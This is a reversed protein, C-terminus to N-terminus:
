HGGPRRAVRGQLREVGGHRQGEQLYAEMLHVIITSATKRAYPTRMHHALQLTM